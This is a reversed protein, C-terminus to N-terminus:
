SSIAGYPGVVLVLQWEQVLPLRIGVLGFVGYMKGTKWMLIVWHVKVCLVLQDASKEAFHIEIAVPSFNCGKHEYAKHDAV